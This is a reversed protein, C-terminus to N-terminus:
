LEVFGKIEALATGKTNCLPWIFRRGCFLKGTMPNEEEAFCLFAEGVSSNWVEKYVDYGRISCSMTIFFTGATAM